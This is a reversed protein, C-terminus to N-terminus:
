VVEVFCKVVVEGWMRVYCVDDGLLLVVFEEGGICVFMVDFGFVGQVIEVFVKFVIDGVQYGYCDNIVKFWDFDFVFMVVFWNSGICEILCEGWEFFWCCNGFCILYDMQLESLFQGYVEDWILKLLMMLLVMVYLVGEIMMLKSVLLQMVLGFVLVLGLLVIGCVFYFVVYLM